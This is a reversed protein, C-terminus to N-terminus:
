DVLKYKTSSDVVEYTFLVSVGKVDFYHFYRSLVYGNFLNPCLNFMM